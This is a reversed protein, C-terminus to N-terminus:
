EGDDPPTEPTIDKLNKPMPEGIDMIADFDVGREACLARVEEETRYSRNVVAANVHMPLVKGLLPAFLEERHKALHVMYGYLGGPGCNTFAKRAKSYKKEGCTEAAAIIADKMAMTIKNPVGKRRGAGPLRKVGKKFLSRKPVKTVEGKNKHNTAV